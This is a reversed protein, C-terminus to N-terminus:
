RPRSTTANRGEETHRSVPRSRRIARLASVAPDPLLSRALANWWARSGGARRASRALLGLSRGRRGRQALLRALTVQHEARRRLCLAALRDGRVTRATKEYVTVWSAHVRERDAQRHQPHVRVCALVTEEVHAASRAALRFWLEYDECDLFAEDFGGVEALLTREVMVTPLPVLADIRLLPELIWGRYPHWPQVGTDNADQGTADIRRFATYGWRCGAHALGALQTTLKDPPWLDDDDLFAVYEGRAVALGANRVRAPKGTHEVRILRLRPDDRRTLTAPTDDSSGDDIVILEWRQYTQRRVSDVAERLLASRNYTPM